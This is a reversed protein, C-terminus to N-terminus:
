LGGGGEIKIEREMESASGDELRVRVIARLTKLGDADISVSARAAQGQNWTQRKLRFVNARRASCPRLPETQNSITESSFGARECLTEFSNFGDLGVVGRVSGLPVRLELSLADNGLLANTTGTNTASINLRGDVGRSLQLTTESLADHDALAAAVQEITLTAPDEAGPLRFVCIGLLREGAQERVARANERLTLASPVDLVLSDGARMVMGEIVVDGRARYVYRWESEIKVERSERSEDKTKFPSRDILELNADSAVRAPDIDGRLDVLAGNTDYLLAYGYAALGAYFPSSLKRAREVTRAVSQTSAIPWREKLRQPISAGYCQPIWFDVEDLVAALDASDMWTPLGTVSLKADKPLRERTLRLVVAYRKLLRTPVDIDLQLGAVNAGDETAREFDKAYTESLAASLAREDVREFDRLLAPTANYVLHLAVGRPFKGTLARIRRLKGGESEIQGARLFLTRAGTKQTANEVDQASPSENRWAWFVVPVESAAWARPKRAHARWAFLALLIILLAALALSVKHAARLAKFTQALM